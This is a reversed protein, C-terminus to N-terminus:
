TKREKQLYELAIQLNQKYREAPGIWYQMAENYLKILRALNIKRALDSSALDEYDHTLGRGIKTIALDYPGLLWVTLKKLYALEEIKELRKEYNPHLNLLAESVLHLGYEELLGLGWLRRSKDLADIDETWRKGGHRVIVAAGGILILEIKWDGPLLEGLTQDLRRLAEYVQEKKWLM